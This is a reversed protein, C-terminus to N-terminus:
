GDALPLRVTVATGKGPASALDITGGHAETIEKAIALGLGTGGAARSRGKEVRYFREFIRPLDEPPIGPGDDVVTFEARGEATRLRVRVHGGPPTYELANGVLNVVVEALRDADGEVTAPELRTTLRLGRQRAVPALRRVSERVLARLDLPERRLGASELRTLLLLNKVLRALRDTEDLAVQLFRRRQDSRLRGFAATEVYSRITTLPTRLEHSVDAVFERRRRELLLAETVDQLVVVTQGDDLDSRQLRYTRGCIEHEGPPLARLKERDAEEFVAASPNAFLLRGDRDFALVADSLHDLVAQLNRRDAALDAMTEGLRRSLHAFARALEGIEDSSRPVEVEFFRGSAMAVAQATLRRLPRAILEAFLFGVVVTLALAIATATVLVTRVQAVSRYVPALSARLEVVGVVSGSAEVPLAVVLHPGGAADYYAQRQGALAAAIAPSSLKEHLAATPVGSTGVVRGYRDLVVTDVGSLSGFGNIYPTLDPTEPEALFRELFTGLLAGQTTVDATFTALDYRQLSSLLYTGAVEMALLVLLVFGVLM